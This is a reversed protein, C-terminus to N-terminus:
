KAIGTIDFDKNKIRSKPAKSKKPRKVSEKAKEQQKSEEKTIKEQEDPIPTVVEAAATGEEVRAEVGEQIIEENKQVQVGEDPRKM